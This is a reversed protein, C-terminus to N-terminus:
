NVEQHVVKISGSHIGEPNPTVQIEIDQGLAVLFSFLQELSFKQLRGNKLASVKPPDIGIIEAAEKQTLGKEEIIDYIMSALKVKAFKEEANPFGLDKFINGSSVIYDKM